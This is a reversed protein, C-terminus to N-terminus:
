EYIIFLYFSSFWNPWTWRKRKEKRKRKILNIVTFIVSRRSYECLIYRSVISFFLIFFHLCYSSMYTKYVFNGVHNARCYFENTLIGVYFKWRYIGVVNRVINYYSQLFCVTRQCSMEVLLIASLTIMLIIRNTWGDIINFKHDAARGEEGETRNTSREQRNKEAVFLWEGWDWYSEVEWLKELVVVSQKDADSNWNM